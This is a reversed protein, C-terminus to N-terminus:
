PDFGCNIQEQAVMAFGPSNAVRSASVSNLTTSSFPAGAPSFNKM